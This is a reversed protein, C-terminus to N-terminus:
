ATDDIWRHELRTAPPTPPTGQRCHLEGVALGAAQLRARLQELEGEILAATRSESAWLQGSLTGQCLQARVQLAGLPALDFALEIKWLSDRAPDNGSRGEPPERQLKLQLPTPQDRLPVEMQWTQTLHGDPGSQTQALSSLQHTQVRSIAAAALKLLNQLDGEGELEAILRSPLPFGLGAGRGGQQGLAGLLSRAMSPLSAALASGAPAAALALANPTPALREVLRLLQAKLDQGLPETQGGLLRRELGLGSNKLAQALRQADGLQSFTPLSNQLQELSQRVAPPLAQADLRALAGFLGSLSGQRANQGALQQLIDLQELRGALPLFQLSQSGRVQANLLSGVPLPQPSDLLLRRGALPSDLLQVVIQQLGNGGAPASSLVRAQLLSGAPLQSLDLRQLAPPESAILRALLRNDTQAAVQLRSGAPLEPLAAAHVLVQASRGDAHILRLTLQQGQSTAQQQTVEAQARQGPALLEELPQQATLSILRAAHLPVAGLAASAPLSFNIESMFHNYARVVQRM